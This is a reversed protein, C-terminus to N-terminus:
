IVLVEWVTWLNDLRSAAVAEGQTPMTITFGSLGDESTWTVAKLEQLTMERGGAVAGCGPLAGRM